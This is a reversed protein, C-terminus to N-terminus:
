VVVREHDAVQEVELQGEHEHDHGHDPTQPVPRADHEARGEERQDAVEEVLQELAPQGHGAQLHQRLLVDRDDDPGDEQEVREGPMRTADSLLDTRQLAPQPAAPEGEPVRRLAFHPHAIDTSSTCRQEIRKPPTWAARSTLRLAPSHSITPTMPGLPAPLVVVKSMM